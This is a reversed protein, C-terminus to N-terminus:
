APIPRKFLLSEGTCVGSDNTLMNSGALEWGQDGLRRLTTQIDEETVDADSAPQHTFIVRRVGDREYRRWYWIAYEWRQM